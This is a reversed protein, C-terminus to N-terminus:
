KKVEAPKPTSMRIIMSMIDRQNAEIRALREENERRMQQGAEGSLIEPLM